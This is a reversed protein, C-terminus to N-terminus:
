RVRVLLDSDGYRRLAGAMKIALLRRIEEMEDESLLNKIREEGFGFKGNATLVPVTMFQLSNIVEDLPMVSGDAIRLGRRSIRKFSDKLQKGNLPYRINGRLSIYGEKAWVFNCGVDLYFLERSDDFFSYNDASKVDFISLFERYIEEEDMVESLLGSNASRLHPILKSVFYYPRGGMLTQEFGNIKEFGVHKNQNLLVFSDPVHLGARRAIENTIAEYIPQHAADLSSQRPLRSGPCYKIYCHFKNRWTEIVCKGGPNSGKRESLLKIEKAM